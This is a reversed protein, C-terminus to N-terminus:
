RGARVVFSATIEREARRFQIWLKYDGEAPVLPHFSVKPGGTALEEPHAHVADTLDTRVMLMHAPAGLFPQLDTVPQGTKADALTFTLCADKGAVFDEVKLAVRMGDVVTEGPTLDRNEIAPGKSFRSRVGVLIARQLMQPTAGTPLFDAFLMYEGSPLPHKLVFSGDPQATPHVHAFSELDRSVVFLHFTKEHVTEFRNVVAHTEPDRVTLKLGSAGTRARLVAVDLKYEGVRPPPIPVLDM